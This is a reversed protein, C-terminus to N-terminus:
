GLQPTGGFFFKEEADTNIKKEAQFFFNALMAIFLLKNRAEVTFTNTQFTQFQFERFFQNERGGLDFNLVICFFIGRSIKGWMKAFM